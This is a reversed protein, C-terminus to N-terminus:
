MDGYEEMVAVIPTGSAAVAWLGRQPRDGLGKAKNLPQHPYIPMGNTSSVDPNRGVYVIITDDINVVSYATRMRDESMIVQPTTSLTVQKTMEQEGKEWLLIRLYDNVAGNADSEGHVM